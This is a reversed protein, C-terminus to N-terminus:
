KPTTADGPRGQQDALARVLREAGHTFAQAQNLLSHARDLTKDRALISAATVLAEAGGVAGAIFATVEPANM